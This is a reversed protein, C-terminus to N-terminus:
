LESVYIAYDKRHKIYGNNKIFETSVAPIQPFKTVVSPRGGKKTEKNEKSSSVVTMKWLTDLYYMLSMAILYMEHMNM